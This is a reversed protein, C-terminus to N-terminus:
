FLSRFELKFIGIKLILIARSEYKLIQSVNELYVVVESVLHLSDTYKTYSYIRSNGKIYIRAKSDAGPV